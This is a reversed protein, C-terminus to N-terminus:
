LEELRGFWGRSTFSSNRHCDLCLDDVLSVNIKLLKCGKCPVKSKICKEKKHKLLENITKFYIGCKCRVFNGDKKLLFSDIIKNHIKNYTYIMSPEKINKELTKPCFLCKVDYNNKNQTNLKTYKIICDVCVTPNCTSGPIRSDCCKWGHVQTMPVFYEQCINCPNIIDGYEWVFDNEVIDIIHNFTQKEIEKRKSSLKSIRETLEKNMKYKEKLQNTLKIFDDFLETSAIDFNTKNRILNQLQYFELDNNKVRKSLAYLTSDINKLKENYQEMKFSIYISIIFNM